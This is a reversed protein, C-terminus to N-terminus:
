NLLTREILWWGGMVSVGLSGPVVVWPRYWNRNRGWMGVALFAIALVTVQGLEVGINFALLGSMFAEPPLGIEALVGAFGLGHLLGFGFVVVPRWKQLHRTFLNEVGVYIISAAILPEVIQPPLSVVDYISLALTISHAITFATVQRLLPGWQASLLFIGLVFLIHDMGLPVIHTFGIIVFDLFREWGSRQDIGELPIPDSPAGNQLWASFGSTGEKPLMRIVSSGFEESWRWIVSSAGHPVTGDLKIESIRALESDGVEPIVLTSVQPTGRAEGFRLELGNLFTEKFGSFRQRLEEPPLLRLTNYRSANPSDNTDEHAPGIGALLAELNLSITISYQGDPTVSMTAIAPRVEHAKGWGPLGLLLLGLLVARSVRRFSTSLRRESFLTLGM